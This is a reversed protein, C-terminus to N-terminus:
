DLVAVDPGPETSVPRVSAAVSSLVERAFPEQIPSVGPAPFSPRAESPSTESGNLGRECAPTSHSTSCTAGSWRASSSSRPSGAVTVACASVHLATAVSSAVMAVSRTM